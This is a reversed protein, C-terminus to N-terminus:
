TLTGIIQDGISPRIAVMTQGASILLMPSNQHIIVAAGPSIGLSALKRIMDTEQLRLSLIKVKSNIPFSSLSSEM